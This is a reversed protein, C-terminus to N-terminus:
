ESEHRYGPELDERAAGCRFNEWGGLSRPWCTWRKREGRSLFWVGGKWLFAARGCFLWLNYNCISNSVVRRFPSLLYPRPCRNLRLRPIEKELLRGFDNM